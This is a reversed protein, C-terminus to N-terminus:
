SLRGQLVAIRRDIKKVASGCNRNAGLRLAELWRIESGIRKIEASWDSAVKKRALRLTRIEARNEKKMNPTM